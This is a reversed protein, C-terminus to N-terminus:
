RNRCLLKEHVLQALLVHEESASMNNLSFCNTILRNPAEHFVRAELRSLAGKHSVDEVWLLHLELDICVAHFEHEYHSEESYSKAAQRYRELDLESHRDM